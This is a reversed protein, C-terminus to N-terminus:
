GLAASEASAADSADRDRAGFLYSDMSLVGAELGEVVREVRTGDGAAGWAVFLPLFHEDTPHARVAGPALERYRILADTDGRELTQGLWAAFERAYPQPESRERNQMWDRLNHTVHGSGVILVNEGALPALARGLEVHHAAGRGPQIALQVVPVDADPYM